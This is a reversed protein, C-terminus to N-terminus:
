MKERIKANPGYPRIAPNNQVAKHVHVFLVFCPNAFPLISTQPISALFRKLRQVRRIIYHLLSRM